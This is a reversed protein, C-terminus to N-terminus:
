VLRVALRGYREWIAKGRVTRFGRGRLAANCNAGERFVGEDRRMRGLIRGLTRLISTEGGDGDELEVLARNMQESFGLLIHPPPEYYPILLDVNEVFTNHAHSTENPSAIHCSVTPTDDFDFTTITGTAQERDSPTPVGDKVHPRSM